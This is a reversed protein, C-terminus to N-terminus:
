GMGVLVRVRALLAAGEPGGYGAFSGDPLRDNTQGEARSEGDRVIIYHREGIDPAWADASYDKREVTLGAAVLKAALEDARAKTDTM